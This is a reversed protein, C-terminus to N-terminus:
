IFEKFNPWALAAYYRHGEPGVLHRCNDPAGAAAYIAQVTEFARDAAELPFIPDEKGNIILLPRPAIALALDAQELEAALGPVYNCCCHEMALISDEYTCFSCSPMVVKIREELVAAHYSTTGGGSNGTIAIRDTDVAAFAALADVMCRVDHIRDGQLTRGAMLSEFYLHHCGARDVATKLEGFGRQEMAVAIYGQAVAQLAFDRDGGSITEADRPYKPRGLSIHMGTSHGQLCIVAPRKEGAALGKPLLMHAPVRMGPETEVTFRVEDFRSDDTKTYEVTPVATFNKEPLKVLAAYREKIKQRQAVFDGAPDFSCPKKQRATLEHYFRDTTNLM